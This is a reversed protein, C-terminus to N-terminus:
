EDVFGFPLTDNGVVRRKESVVRYIKFVDASFVKHSKPNVSFRHQPLSLILSDDFEELQGRALKQQREYYAQVFKTMTEITLM